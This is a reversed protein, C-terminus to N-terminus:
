ELGVRELWSCYHWHRFPNNEYINLTVYRCGDEITVTAYDSHVFLLKGKARGFTFKGGQLDVVSVSEPDPGGVLDCNGIGPDHFHDWDVTWTEEPCSYHSIRGSSDTTTHRHAPFVVEAMFDNSYLYIWGQEQLTTELILRTDTRLYDGWENKLNELCGTVYIYDAINEPTIEVVLFVEDLWPLYWESQCLYDIGNLFLKEQEREIQFIGSYVGELELCGQSVRWSGTTEGERYYTFTGDERLTLVTNKLREVEYADVFSSINYNCWDGSLVQTYYTDWANELQQYTSVECRDQESLAEYANQAACLADFSKPTITGLQAIQQEVAVVSEKRPITYVTPADTNPIGIRCACLNLCLLLTLLIAVM